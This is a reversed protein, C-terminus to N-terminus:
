RLLCISPARTPNTPTASPANLPLAGTVGTLQKSTLFPPGGGNLHTIPSLEVEQILPTGNGGNVCAGLHYVGAEDPTWSIAVSLMYAFGGGIVSVTGFEQILQGPDSGSFNTSYVGLRLVGLTSTASVRVRVQTFTIGSEPIVIPCTKVTEYDSFSNNYTVTGVPGM